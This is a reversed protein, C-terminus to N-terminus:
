RLASTRKRIEREFQVVRDPLGEVFVECRPKTTETRQYIIMNGDVFSYPLVNIITHKQISKRTYICCM